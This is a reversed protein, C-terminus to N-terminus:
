SAPTDSVAVFLARPNRRRVFGLLSRNSATIRTSAFSSALIDKSPADRMCPQYIDAACRQMLRVEQDSYPNHNSM